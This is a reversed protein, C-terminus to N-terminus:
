ALVQELHEASWNCVQVRPLAFVDSRRNVFQKGTICAGVYGAEGVFRTCERDFDGFPYAFTTPRMGTLRECREVSDKIERAKECSKLRVLSSHTLAHSGFSVGNSRVSRIEEPTAPRHTLRSPRKGGIQSRLQEMGAEVGPEDRFRFRSWLAIFAHQRPTKPPSDPEWLADKDSVDGLLFTESDLDLAVDSCTLVIDQLEDWWYEEGREILEAPLFMTAPIAHRELIPVAFEFNCAYGDDFTVAAADPPLTGSRHREAFEVLPMVARNCALWEAQCSLNEPSVVLAWPDFTEHTVRHYMLIVPRPGATRPLASRGIEGLRRLLGIM